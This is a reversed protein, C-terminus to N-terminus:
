VLYTVQSLDPRSTKGFDAKVLRPTLGLKLLLMSRASIMWFSWGRPENSGVMGLTISLLSLFVCSRLPIGPLHTNMSDVLMVWPEEGAWLWLVLMGDETGDVVAELLPWARM